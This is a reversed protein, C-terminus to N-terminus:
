RYVFHSHLMRVVVCLFLIHFYTKYKRNVNLISLLLNVTSTLSAQQSHHQIHGLFHFLLFTITTSLTFTSFSYYNQIYNYPLHFFRNKNMWFPQRHHTTCASQLISLSQSFIAKSYVVCVTQAAEVM